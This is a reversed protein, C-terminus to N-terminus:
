KVSGWKKFHPINEGTRIIKSTHLIIFGHLNDIKDQVAPSCPICPKTCGHLIHLCKKGKGM